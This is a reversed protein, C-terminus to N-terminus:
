ASRSSSTPVMSDVLKGAMDGVKEGLHADAIQEGVATKATELVDRGKDIAEAGVKGLVQREAQSVPLAAGFLAGLATGIAAVLIPQEEFLKTVAQRTDAALKSADQNLHEATEKGEEVLRKAHDVQEGAAGRVADAAGKAQDTLSAATDLALKEAKTAMGAVKDTAQGALSKATDAATSAASKVKGAAATAADTGVTTATKLASTATAMVDAGTTRTLMMTLGAGILLAAGPNTRASEALSKVVSLSSDRLVGVLETSLASTTMGERLQGLTNSLGARQAEAERQLQASERM